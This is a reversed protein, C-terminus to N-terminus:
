EAEIAYERIARISCQKSYPFLIEECYDDDYFINYQDKFFATMTKRGYKAETLVIRNLTDRHVRYIEEGMKIESPLTEFEWFHHHFIRSITLLVDIDKLTDPDEEPYDERMANEVATHTLGMNAFYNECPEYYVMTDIITNILKM